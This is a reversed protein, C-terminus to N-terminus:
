LNQIKTTPNIERKTTAYGNIVSPLLVLFLDL